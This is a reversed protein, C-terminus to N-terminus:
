FIPGGATPRTLPVNEEVTDFPEKEAHEVGEAVIRTTPPAAFRDDDLDQISLRLTIGDRLIAQVARLPVYFDTHFLWGRQIDLYALQPDYNRITDLKEGGRDYVIMGDAIPWDSGKSTQNPPTSVGMRENL